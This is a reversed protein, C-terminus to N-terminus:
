YSLSPESKGLSLEYIEGLGYSLYVSWAGVIGFPFLLPNKGKISIYIGSGLSLILPLVILPTFTFVSLIAPGYHYWSLLSSYKRGVRVRARGFIFMQRVMKTFNSRHKHLVVSGPIAYLKYGKATLRADLVLDEGVNNTECFGGVELIKERFLASCIPPNHPVEMPDFYSTEMNRSGFRVFPSRLTESIAKEAINVSDPIYPTNSGGVGIVKSDRANLELLPDVLSDIWNGPVICDSDTFCVIDGTAAKVGKNRNVGRYYTEEVLM